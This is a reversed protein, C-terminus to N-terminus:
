RGSEDARSGDTAPDAVGDRPLSLTFTSGRGVTSAVSLEGGMGRALDRSIALGLGVGERPNQLTRDLQVFPEFIAAHRDAPIGPGTDDVHVLVRDGDAGCRITVHGGPPTFKVANSLLNVLIQELKSADARAVLEPACTGGQFELSKAATQPATMAVVNDIVNALSVPELKYIVQGAELRSFNLIDNILSLLYQQSRQIRSLDAKQAESVVGRVGLMLLEAYGAIANLPTRLEHSMAALFESKTRNAAEAELRRREIEEAQVRLRDLLGSLERARIEAAERSAEEMALRRADEVARRQAILRETLDRTVKAFGVLEGDPARLATIVVNAWFRTGDKRVRWGEDEFRGVHSSAVRLEMAPKENALDEPPYFISFHQGIIESATYGKIRQAGPNWSVVHGTADLVFIAYDQVSEILLSYLDATTSYPHTV